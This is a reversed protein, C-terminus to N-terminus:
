DFVLAIKLAKDQGNRALEFAQKWNSFPIYHTIIGQLALEPDSLCELAEDVRDEDNCSGVIELESLHLSFLDIPMPDFVASFIVLRGRPRLAKLCDQVAPPASVALISVDVSRPIITEIIEAGPIRQLRFPERGSVLVRGAGARVALRAILNGFPGDGVVLVVRDKIDGARAIAELCVAVPELLSGTAVPLNAPLKFVRDARHVFYEAFTGERDHGLHGMQSCLHRYGRKCEACQLCPVVPHAAVLDGPHLSTVGMGCAVIEGAGEHGLIRPLKIHFRNEAIDFLDSTCITTAVTRVLVEGPGAQPMPVEAEVLRNLAQLQLAHMIAPKNM